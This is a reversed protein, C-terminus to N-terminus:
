ICFINYFRSKKMIMVMQKAKGAFLKPIPVNPLKVNSPNPLPLNTRIDVVDHPNSVEAFAKLHFKAILM